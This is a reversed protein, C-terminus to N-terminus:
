SEINSLKDFVLNLIINGIEVLQEEKLSEEKTMIKGHVLNDIMSYLIIGFFNNSSDNVNIEFSTDGELHEIQSYIKGRFEYTNSGIHILTYVIKHVNPRLDKTFSNCNMDKLNKINSLKLQDILDPIFLKAPNYESGTSQYQEKLEKLLTKIYQKWDEYNGLWLSLEIQDMISIFDKLPDKSAM